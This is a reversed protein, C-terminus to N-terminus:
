VKKCLFSYYTKCFSFSSHFNGASAKPVDQVGRTKLVLPICSTYIEKYINKIARISFIM